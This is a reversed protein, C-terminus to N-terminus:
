SGCRRSTSSREFTFVLVAWLDEATWGEFMDVGGLFSGAGEEVLM